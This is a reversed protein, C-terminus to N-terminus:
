RQTMGVSTSPGRIKRKKRDNQLAERYSQKWWGFGQACGFPFFGPDKEKGRARPVAGDPSAAGGARTLSMQAASNDSAGCM